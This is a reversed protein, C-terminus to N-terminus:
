CDWLEIWEIMRGQVLNNVYMKMANALYHKKGKIKVKHQYLDLLLNRASFDFSEKARLEYVVKDVLPRFPEMLDSALAFFNSFSKHFISIRTDLGSSIISKIMLARIISYGYNLMSNIITYKNMDMNKQRYFNKGFLSHWYIKSAHGERNSIDFSKIEQTLVEMDQIYENNGTKNLLSIQNTIKNKVINKWLANKYLNTWSIQKEIIKLSMHNGKVPITYSAPERKGDMFVISVNSNTLANLLKISITARDNNFILLDIDNMNILIKEKIRKIFLNNLYLSIYEDTNIEVIKWGM